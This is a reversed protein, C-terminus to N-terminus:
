LPCAPASPSTAEGPADFDARLAPPTRRVLGGAPGSATQARYLSSLPVLMAAGCTDPTMAANRETRRSNMPFGSATLSMKREVAVSRLRV